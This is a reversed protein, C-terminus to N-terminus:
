MSAPTWDHGSRRKFFSHRCQLFLDTGQKGIVRTHPTGPVPASRASGKGAIVEHLLDELFAACNAIRFPLTGLRRGPFFAWALWSGGETLVCPAVAANGCSCGHHCRPWRCSQNGRMGGDLDAGVSDGVLRRCPFDDYLVHRALGHKRERSRLAGPQGVSFQSYDTIFM